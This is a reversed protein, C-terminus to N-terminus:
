VEERSQKGYHHGSAQPDEGTPGVKLGMGVREAIDSNFGQGILHGNFPIV